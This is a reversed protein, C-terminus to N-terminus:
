KLDRFSWYKIVIDQFIACSASTRGFDEELYELMGSWVNLDGYNNIQNVMKKYERNAHSTLIDKLQKRKTDTIETM